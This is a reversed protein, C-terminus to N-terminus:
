GQWHQTVTSLQETMDSETVGHGTSWWAGRDTPIRGALIHLPNGHVGEPSRGSVPISGLEGVNCASEKGDSGGPFGLSAATPWRYRGDVPKTFPAWRCLPRALKVVSSLLSWGVCTEPHKDGERSEVHYSTMKCHSLWAQSKTLGTPQLVGPKGTRRYRGSNAWIWMWRTLSAMWGNWGRDDRVRVRRRGGEIKGLMLNKELSNARLMVHGFYQLKLKLM